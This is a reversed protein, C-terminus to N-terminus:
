SKVWKSPNLIDETLFPSLAEKIEIIVDVNLSSGSFIKLNDKAQSATEMGVVIPLDLSIAFEAALEANSLGHRKAISSWKISAQYASPMKNMVEDPSMLLLGQLYISRVFCLKDMKKALGFVGSSIMNQDWANCPAQIMDIGETELARKAEDLTYVSVGLYKVKGSKRMGELLEGLGDKWCDLWESRHLMLGWLQKVGIKRMSEDVSASIAPLDKPSLTPSIKSIVKASSAIGMSGMAKGLVAESDGYAQATDFVSIGGKWVTSVLEAAQEDSPKGQSNAIGYDLGLQVTGLVLTSIKEGRWTITKIGSM